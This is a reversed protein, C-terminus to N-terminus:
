RRLMYSLDPLNRVVSQVIRDQEIEEKSKSTSKTKPGAIPPTSFSVSKPAPSAKGTPKPTSTPVPTLAPNSAAKAVPASVAVSQPASAPSDFFSFDASAWPDSTTAVFSSASMNSPGVFPLSSSALDAAPYTGHGNTSIPPTQSTPIFPAPTSELGFDSPARAPSLSVPQSDPIPMSGKSLPSTTTTKEKSVSLAPSLPPASLAPSSVMEGWDDEDEKKIDTILTPLIPITPAIMSHPRASKTRAAAITKTQKGSSPTAFPLPNSAPSESRSQALVNSVPRSVEQIPVVPSNWGFDAVPASAPAALKPDDSISTSTASSRRRPKPPSRNKSLSRERGLGKPWERPVEAISVPPTIAPKKGEKAAFAHAISVPKAKSDGWGFVSSGKSAGGLVVRGSMRDEEMWRAVIKLTDKRMESHVWNIRAYNEDDGADHKRKTGYRSVRYWTKREEITSLTNDLDRDPIFVAEAIPSEDIGPYIKSLLAIDIDFSVPGYDQKPQPMVRAIANPNQDTASTSATASHKSGLPISDGDPKGAESNGDEFDGFDGFDDENDGEVDHRDRPGGDTAVVHSSHELEDGVLHNGSKADNDEDVHHHSQELEDQLNSTEDSPGQVTDTSSSDHDEVVALGDFHLVLEQVKSSAKRSTQPRVVDDDISTRPSEQINEDHRSHESPASSPRSSVHESEPIDVAAEEKEVPSSAEAAQTSTSTTAAETESEEIAVSDRGEVGNEITGDKAAKHISAERVLSDDKTVNQDDKDDTSQSKGPTGDDVSLETAWPDPSPQRILQTAKPMLSPSLSPASASPTTPIGNWPLPSLMEEQLRTGVVNNRQWDNQNGDLGRASGDEAPLAAWEGFGDDEGDDWPSTTKEELALTSARVPTTPRVNLDKKQQHEDHHVQAEDAWPSGWPDDMDM